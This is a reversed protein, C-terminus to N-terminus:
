LVASAALLANYALHAAAGPLVSGTWARLSTLGLGTFTVAVLGGWGGWVQPVHAAVFLGWALLFAVLGGFRLAKGYVFGRFFIEEALPVLVALLAFSLLGSPWSIFTEIPAEGTKPVLSVALRAVVVLAAAVGATVALILWWPRRPRVLGLSEVRSRPTGEGVGVLPVILAAAVLVQAAAFLLGGLLSAAAGEFPIAAVAAGAGLVLAVGAALDILARSREASRAASGSPLRAGWMFAGVLLLAGALSLGVPLRDTPGLPVRALVRVQVPVEAIRPPLQAGWVAEVAYEGDEEIPGEGLPLCARDGKVRRQELLGEDVPQRLMLAEVDPRWIVLELAGAWVETELADDACLEFVAEEGERLEISTLRASQGTSGELERAASLTRRDTEHELEFRELTAVRWTGAAAGALLLIVAFGLLATRAAM